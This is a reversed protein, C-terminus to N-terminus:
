LQSILTNKYSGSYNLVLRLQSDRGMSNDQCHSGGHVNPTNDHTHGNTINLSLRKQSRREQVM